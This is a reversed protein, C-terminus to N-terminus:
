HLALLFIILNRCYREWCFKPLLIVLQGRQANTYPERSQRRFSLIHWLRWIRNENNIWYLNQPKIDRHIIDSDHLYKLGKNISPIIEEKLKQFSLAAVQGLDGEPFFPLVDFYKDEFYGYDVIPMVQSSNLAMQNIRDIFKQRKTDWELCRNKKTYKPLSHKATAM